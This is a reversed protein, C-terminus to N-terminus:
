RGDRLSWQRLSQRGRDSPRLPGTRVRNISEKEDGSDTLAPQNYRPLTKKWTYWIWLFVLIIGLCLNGTAFLRGTLGLWSNQRECAELVSSYDKVLERARHVEVRLSSVEHRLNAQGFDELISRAIHTCITLVWHSWDLPMCGPKRPPIKVWVAQFWLM